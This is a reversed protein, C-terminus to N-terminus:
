RDPQSPQHPLHPPADRLFHLEISITLILQGQLNLKFLPTNLLTKVLKAKYISNRYIKKM